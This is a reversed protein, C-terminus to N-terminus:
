RTVGLKAAVAELTAKMDDVVHRVGSIMTERREGSRRLDELLGDHEDLRDDHENVTAVIEEHRMLRILRRMDVIDRYLEDLGYEAPRVVPRDPPTPYDSM